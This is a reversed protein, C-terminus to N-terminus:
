QKIVQYVEGSDQDILTAKTLAPYCSEDDSLDETSDQVLDSVNWDDKADNKASIVFEEDADENESGLRSTMLLNTKLLFNSIEQTKYRDRCSALSEFSKYNSKVPSKSKIKGSGCSKNIKQRGGAGAHSIGTQKSKSM